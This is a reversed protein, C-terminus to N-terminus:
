AICHHKVSPIGFIADAIIACGAVAPIRKFGKKFLGVKQGFSVFFQGKGGYTQYYNQATLEHDKHFCQEM